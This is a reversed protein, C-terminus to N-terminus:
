PRILTINRHSRLLSTKLAKLPDPLNKTLRGKKKKKKKGKEKKKTKSWRIIPSVLTLWARDRTCIIDSSPKIAIKIQLSMDILGTFSRIEMEM